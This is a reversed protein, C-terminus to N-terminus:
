LSRIRFKNGKLPLIEINNGMRSIIYNNESIEASKPIYGYVFTLDASIDDDTKATCFAYTHNGVTVELTGNFYRVSFKDNTFDIEETIAYVNESSIHKLNLSYSATKAAIDSTLLLYENERRGNNALYKEVYKENSSGELDAIIRENGYSIVVVASTKDGLIAIVPRNKITETMVITMSASILVVATLVATVAKKRSSFLCTLATIGAGAIFILPIFENIRPVTFFPVASLADSISIVASLFLEAPLLLFSFIGRTLVFAFGCILSATCLPLLLINSLPSILSTEEFYYMSVPMVALSVCVASTIEAKIDGWFTSKDINKTMYPAFVAIGFTGSFSLIFSSSYVAYCDCICIALAALCLSNLSDNQEGFLKASYLMDLMFVARIASVPYEALGVLLILFINVAAFRICRNIRLRKLISMIVAGVASVHLGSVSLIHGIGLRYLDSSIESDIQESGGFIMGSLFGGTEGDMEIRLRATMEERFSALSRKIHANNQKKVSISSIKEAELYIHRSKNWTLSDYLYDNEFVSFTCKDITIIDGYDANLATTFVSIRANQSNNIQGKLTYSAFDGDYVTYDTIEGCFSGEKGSYARIEDYVFHTYSRNVTVAGVFFVALILYDVAKFCKLRGYIAILVATCLAAIIGINDFFFSAFFLGSVYAAAAGIM